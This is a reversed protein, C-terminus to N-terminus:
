VFLKCQWGIISVKMLQNLNIGSNQKELRFFNINHFRLNYHYFSVRHNYQDKRIESILFNMSRLKAALGDLKQEVPSVITTEGPDGTYVEFQTKVRDKGTSIWSTGTDRFTQLCVLHDSALTSTFFFRGSSGLQQNMVTEGNAEVTVQMRIANISNSTPYESVISTSFNGLFVTHKPMRELFCKKQGIDMFFYIEDGCISGCIAFIIILVLVLM